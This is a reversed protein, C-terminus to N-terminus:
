DNKAEKQINPKVLYTKLLLLVAIATVSIIYITITNNSHRGLDIVHWSALVIFAVSLIGHFVRWNKYSLGLNDRFLSTLGIIFMLCWAIMGMIIGSSTLTSIITVFADIPDVGSEFYRPVVILFPHFVLISVFVYGIIKHIKIIKSMKHGKLNNKNSRALFFQALMMCFSIITLFSITNKLLSRDQNEGMSILLIPLVVFVIIAAITNYKRIRKEM